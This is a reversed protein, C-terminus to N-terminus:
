RSQPLWHLTVSKGTASREHKDCAQAKKARCELMAICETCALACRSFEFAQKLYAQPAHLLFPLALVIQALAGIVVGLIMHAPPASQVVFSNDVERLSHREKGTLHSIHPSM